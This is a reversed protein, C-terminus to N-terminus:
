HYDIQHTVEEESMEEVERLLAERVASALQMITPSEFLQRLPLDIQFMERLRSIVQTGLLSHGGLEFFNAEVSVRERNLVQCMIAALSEELPDRPAVDGKPGGVKEEPSPLARRDLKGNDTLPLARLQMFVTPVM